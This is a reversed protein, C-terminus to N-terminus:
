EGWPSYWVYDQGVVARVFLAYQIFVWAATTLLFQPKHTPRDGQFVLVMVGPWYVSLRVCVYYLVIEM